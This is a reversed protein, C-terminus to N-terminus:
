CIPYDISELKGFHRSEKKKRKKEKKSVLINSICDDERIVVSM